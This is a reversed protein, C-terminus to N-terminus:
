SKEETIKIEGPTLEYLQHVIEDIQEELKKVKTQRDTNNLYDKTSTISLISEVLSIIPKQRELSVQKIPIEELFSIPYKLSGEPIRATYFKVIHYWNLLKSNLLGLVYLPNNEQPNNIIASHVGVLLGIGEKDINATLEKAVGRIIIKKKLFLEKTNGNLRCKKIDLFPEYIDKKYLKAKQGWTYVYKGIFGNTAIRIGGEFKGDKIFKDLSWYDFGMVGTRVDSIKGLQKSGSSIKNLILKNSNSVHIDFILNKGSALEEKTRYNFTINPLQKIENDHLISIEIKDEPDLNRNQSITICPSVFASQFVRKCDALDLIKLIAFENLFLKRIKIGYDAILFKNSTIFCSTGLTRLINKSKEFFIVYIDYSGYATQYLSRYLDNMDTMENTNIYPPNAIVVDFGPNERQFIESFYLKWLFFPKSKNKKYQNLKEIAGTKGEEKLTEEILEWEIKDIKEQLEKKTKRNQENFYQKQLKRLETLKKQSERVRKTTAEDLTMQEKIEDHSSSLNQKRRKLKGIEKNLSDLKSDDKIKGTHIDHVQQYLEVLNKDIQEAEISQKKPPERLLSEDFLKVGEFEELLSNGCMIKHDLNPLPKLNKTDEEDVILSLWFRLKAIDVASSDIDVGYLSNEIAHRKLSYITRKEQQKEDFFLTLISRAKVIENMMGVPFAGSGVAPDVVKINALLEDIREKSQIISGPLTMKSVVDEMRKEIFKHDSRGRILDQELKKFENMNRLDEGSGFDRLQIFAEIDERPIKTNTEIYNILSQQCMYHVIERPTYFSGKSKRDKVELLNEFVKGLMEPDIAVEKELPEDEKITFNYRDFTDLVDKFLSDDLLINTGIWDYDNIPEFLGGNLFPIKCNFKSYYDDDRETALAEYFLLELIDNFFNQYNKKDYLSRLFNKPGAGWEKFKGTQNDKEIGLWGKKQLFYLFVIQGLLKKSFDVTSIDKEEFEKKIQKNKELTQDLLEKINLYLEKYEEFFEKTVNDVSFASEIEDLSPNIKEEMILDLFQRRCTHNPEHIGVLFSYRKAPTLETEVKTKGKQGKALHYEMKVFSYRWDGAEEGYFAVIAADKNANNLYKAIFNRQMTRARDRSSARRLKVILIDIVKKSPDKYSGLMQYSDIYDLYEKWVLWSQPNFEIENFLEKVFRKFRSEDFEKTFTENLLNIASNKDM